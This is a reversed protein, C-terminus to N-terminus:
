MGYRRLKRSLREKIKNGYHSVLLEVFPSYDELSIKKRGLYWDMPYIVTEATYSSIKNLQGEVHDWESKLVIISLTHSEPSAQNNEQWLVM